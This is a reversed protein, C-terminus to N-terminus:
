QGQRQQIRMRASNGQRDLRRDIRDGRRDL